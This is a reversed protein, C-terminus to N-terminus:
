SLAQDLMLSEFTEVRIAENIKNWNPDPNTLPKAKVKAIPITNESM